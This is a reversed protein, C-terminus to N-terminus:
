GNEDNKLKFNNKRDVFSFLLFLSINQIDGM